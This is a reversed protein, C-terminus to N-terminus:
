GGRQTFLWHATIWAAEAALADSRATFPGLVPGSLPTLDALWQGDANPEVHSARSIQLQGLSSLDIAEGYLCRAAGTSDILIEM